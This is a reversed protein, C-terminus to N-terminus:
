RIVTWEVRYGGLPSRAVTYSEAHKVPISDHGDWVPLSKARAVAAPIDAKRAVILAVDMDM